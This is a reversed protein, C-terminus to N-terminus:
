KSSRSSFIFEVPDLGRERFTRLLNDIVWTMSVGHKKAIERLYEINDVSLYFHITRKINPRPDAPM